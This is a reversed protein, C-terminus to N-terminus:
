IFYLNTYPRNTTILYRCYCPMTKASRLGKFRRNTDSMRLTGQHCIFHHNVSCFRGNTSWLWHYGTELAICSENEYTASPSDPRFRTYKLPGYEGKKVGTDCVHLLTEGIHLSCCSRWIDCIFSM